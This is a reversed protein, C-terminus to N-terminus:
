MDIGDMKEEMELYFNELYELEEQSLNDEDFGELKDEMGEYEVLFNELKEIMEPNEPDALYEEMLVYFEDMFTELESMVALFEESLGEHDATGTVIDDEEDDADDGDDEAPTYGCDEEFARIVKELAEEDEDWMASQMDSFLDYIDDRADDFVDHVEDRADEWVDYADDSIDYWEDYDLTDEEVAGYYAEDIVGDYYQDYLGELIGSLIEDNVMELAEDYFEDYISGVLEDREASGPEMGLVDEAREAAYGYIRECLATTESVLQDYFAEVRDTNAIYDEYTAVEAVLTEYDATLAAVTDAVDQECATLEATGDLKSIQLRFDELAEDLTEPEEYYFGFNMEYHFDNLDDGLDYCLNMVDDSLAWWRDYERSRAKGARYSYDEGSDAAEKLIGDYFTDYLDQILGEQILTEILDLAYEENDDCLDDFEDQMDEFSLDSAAIAEAQDAVSNRIDIDLTTMVDLIEDYYAKVADLNEDFAEYSDIAAVLEEFDATLTEAAAKVALTTESDERVANGKLVEIDFAFDDLIANIKDINEDWVKDDLDYYFDYIDDDFDSVIDYVKNSAAQWSDYAANSIAEWESYELSDYGDDVVGNYFAEYLDDIIGYYVDDYIDSKADDYVEEYIEDLDDSMDGFDDGNDAIIEKAYQLSYERLTLCLADTAEVIEEYFADIAETNELYADFTDVDAMLADYNATLVSLTEDVAAAVADDFDGTYTAAAAAEEAPAEVTEEIVATDESRIVTSEIPAFAALSLMLPLSLLVAFVRRM